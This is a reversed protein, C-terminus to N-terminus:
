VKEAGNGAIPDGCGWEDTGRPAVAHPIEGHEATALILHDGLKGM